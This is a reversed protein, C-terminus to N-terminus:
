GTVAGVADSWAGQGATGIAAVRLWYKRASVLGKVTAKAKTSSAAATWADPSAGQPQQEVYYSKAGRLAKWRLVLEGAGPGPKVEVRSPKPLPGVRSPVGSVNMAALAILAEDGGSMRQVYIGLQTLAGNVAADADRELTTKERLQVRATGADDVAQQLAVLLDVFQDIPVPPEPYIDQHELLADNVRWAFHLKALLPMGALGLKVTSM